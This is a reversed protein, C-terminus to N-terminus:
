KTYKDIKRYTEEGERKWKRKRQNSAQRHKQKMLLRCYEENYIRCCQYMPCRIIIRTRRMERLGSYELRYKRRIVSPRHRFCLVSPFVSQYSVSSLIGDIQRFPFITLHRYLILNILHRFSQFQFLYQRCM